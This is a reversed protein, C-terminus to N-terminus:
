ASGRRVGAVVDLVDVDMVVDVEVVVDENSGVGVVVTAALVVVLGAAVVVEVVSGSPDHVRESQWRAGFFATSSRARPPLADSAHAHRCPVASPRSWSPSGRM